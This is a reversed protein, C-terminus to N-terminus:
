SVIVRLSISRRWGGIQKLAPKCTAPAGFVPELQLVVPHSRTLCCCLDTMQGAGCEAKQTLQFGVVVAVPEQGVLAPVLRNDPVREKTEDGIKRGYQFLDIPM